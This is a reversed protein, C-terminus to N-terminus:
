WIRGAIPRVPVKSPSWSLRPRRATERGVVELWRQQTALVLDKAPAGTGSRAASLHDARALALGTRRLMRTM